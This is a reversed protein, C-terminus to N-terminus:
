SVNKIVSILKDKQNTVSKINNKKPYKIIKFENANNTTNIYQRFEILMDNIYRNMEKDSKKLESWQCEWMEIYKYNENECHDMKALTKIYLENYSKKTVKNIDHRKPFCGPCGHYYCGHFEFITKSEKHYGDAKYLSNNIKHEGTNEAHEIIINLQNQLYSLWEIQPKSYKKYQTCQQCGYCRLHDQPTQTFEGHTNCIIILKSKSNIYNSKSYDYKYNHIKNANDIFEYTTHTGKGACKTCGKGALHNGALQDFEGHIKCIITVKTSINVYEVKSYDYIDDHKITAREIFKETTLKESGGCKSCGYGQLHSGPQQEFEGHDNCIIKIKTKSNIYNLKSYDYKNGHIEVAKRIYDITTYSETGNCKSCGSGILHSSANQEFDGHIKCIIIIKTKSDVYQTKSYDYLNSHILSAKEIFSKTTYKVNGACKNCGHGATHQEPIQNFEGHIKCIIVIQTESDIYNVKSYDYLENHITNAVTIFKETTYKRSKSIIESKCKSCGGNGSLHSHPTQKFMNNHKKCKIDIKTNANVYNINSYDYKDDHIKTAKTIFKDGIIRNKLKSNEKGCQPCGCGRIHSNAQQIFDGHTYCTIIIKDLAKVYITKTYDYKNGHVKQARAIFNITKDDKM